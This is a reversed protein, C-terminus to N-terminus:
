VGDIAQMSKNSRTTAPGLGHKETILERLGLSECWQQIEDSGIFKNVDGMLIVQEHEEKWQRINSALDDLIQKRPCCQQKIKDFYRLQQAYASNSGGSLKCPRYCTIIRLKIGESGQFLHWSYRGLKTNDEGKNQVYSIFQRHSISATGGIQYLSKNSPEHHNYSASTAIHGYPFHGCFHYSLRNDQHINSWNRGTEAIGLHSFNFSTIYDSLDFNKQGGRNDPLSQANIFGILGFKDSNNTWLSKGFPKM